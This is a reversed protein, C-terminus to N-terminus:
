YFMLDIRRPLLLRVVLVKWDLELLGKPLRLRKNEEGAVEDGIVGV